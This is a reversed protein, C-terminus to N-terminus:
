RVIIMVGSQERMIEGNPSMLVSVNRGYPVFLKEEAGTPDILIKSDASCADLIDDLQEQTTASFAVWETTELPIGASLFAAPIATATEIPSSVVIKADLGFATKIQSKITPLTAFAEALTTANTPSFTITGATEDLDHYYVVKPTTGGVNVGAWTTNDKRYPFLVLTNTGGSIQFNSGSRKLNPGVLVNKIVTTESLVSTATFNLNVYNRGFGGQLTAHGKFWLNTMYPCQYLACNRLWGVNEPLILTSMGYRILARNGIAVLNYDVGDVTFSSPVELVGRIDQKVNINNEKKVTTYTAWYQAADSGTGSDESGLLATKNSVDIKFRWKVGDLNQTIVNESWAASVAFPCSVVSFLLTAALGRVFSKRNNNM